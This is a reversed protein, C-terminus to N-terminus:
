RRRLFLVVAAFPVLLTMLMVGFYMCALWQGAVAAGFALGTRWGPAALMRLMALIALPVFCLYQLELHSYHETHFPFLAGLIGAVFSARVDSTLRWSVYFFALGCLPFAILFLVNAVLLPDARALILPAGVLGELFTADSYTLTGRAPYFINADFLHRPDHALQHALVALRWASFVPDGPDPVRRPHMVHPELWVLSALVVAAAYFKLARPAPPPQAFRAREAALRSALASDGLSPLPPVRRALALRVAAAGAAYLLPRLPYQLLLRAHLARLLTRGGLAEVAAASILLIIVIDLLTIALPAIRFRRAIM